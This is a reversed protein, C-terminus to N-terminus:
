NSTRGRNARRAVSALERELHPLMEILFRRLLDEVEQSRVEYEAYVVIGAAETTGGLLKGYAELLKAVYPSTTHRGGIWYWHWILLNQETSRLLAERMQLERSGLMETRMRNTIETWVPHKQPIM